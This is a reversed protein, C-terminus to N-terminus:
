QAEIKGTNDIDVTMRKGNFMALATWGNAGRKIDSVDRYGDTELKQKVQAEDMLASSSGSLDTRQPNLGDHQIPPPPSQMTPGPGGQLPPQPAMTQAMALSSAGFLLAAAVTMKLM